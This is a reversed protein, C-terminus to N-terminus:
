LFFKTTYRPCELLFLFNNFFIIKGKDVALLYLRLEHLKKEKKIKKLDDTNLIKDPKRFGDSSPVRSEFKIKNHVSKEALNIWDIETSSNQVQLKFGKDSPFVKRVPKGKKDLIQV